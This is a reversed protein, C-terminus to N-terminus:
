PDNAEDLWRDLVLSVERPSALREDPLKAMMRRCIDSLEAPIEPRLEALPKAEEKQHALLRETVSGGEFPARGALARYLTCGLSYVDSRPSVAHSDRALEPALYDALELPNGTWCFDDDLGRGKRSEANGNVWVKGDDGIMISAPTVEKHVFSPGGSGSLSEAARSVFFVASRVPLGGTSKM